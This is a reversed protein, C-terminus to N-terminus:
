DKKMPLIGAHVKDHCDTCISELQDISFTMTEIGDYHTHHVQLKGIYGCRLCRHSDRKLALKRLAKWEPSQLFIKYSLLYEEKAQM